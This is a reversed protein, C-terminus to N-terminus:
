RWARAAVLRVGLWALLALLALTAAPGTGDRRPLRETYQIPQQELRSLDDIARQIAETQEADYPRYPLGLRSFYDHLSQEPISATEEATASGDLILKRGHSGRLYLWYLGVRNRKLAGALQTRMEADLQAGGDSVLVIVRSGLYPREDFYAAGALMARGIDTNGLGRGIRSANMAALVVDAKQTFPLFAMPQSSFLVLAFADHQREAVFRAIIRRAAAAKSLESGPPLYFGPAEDRRLPNDMSSSRDFVFVVEAGRGIREVQREAGQPEALALVTAAIALAALARLLRDLWVSATDRPWHALTSVVRMQISATRLLPLLALPLAILWWPQQFSMM